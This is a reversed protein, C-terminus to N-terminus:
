FYAEMGFLVKFKTDPNNKRIDNLANMADPYAQVNGHDTIAVAKHGWNFARKVLDGAPTIADLDSMNTHMHLEVRKLPANDTKEKKKVRMISKPDVYLSKTFDDMKVDGNVLLVTGKKIFGYDGMKDSPTFIRLIQSNTYDTFYATLIVFEGNKITKEELSFVEGWLTVNNAAEYVERMETPIDNIAKGALLEADTQFFESEFMLPMKEPASLVNLRPRRQPRGNGDVGAIGGSGKSYGGGYGGKVSSPPPAPETPMFAEPPPTPLGAEDLRLKEERNEIDVTKIGDFIINIDVDFYGKAYKEIEKDIHGESLIDAGGNKLTIEYTGDGESIEASKLYGNIKGTLSPKAHLLDIIHYIRDSSFLVSPYKPFIEASKIELNEKIKEAASLILSSEPVDEMSLQLLLGKSVSNYIISTVEGGGTIEDFVLNVFLDKLKKSM